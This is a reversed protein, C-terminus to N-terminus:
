AKSQSQAAQTQVKSSPKNEDGSQNQESRIGFFLAYLVPVVGLTLVTGIALGFAIAGAMAYFLPDQSIILPMLGLITTSTSMIIPRLRRVCASVMADFQAQGSSNEELDNIEIDIRDILVIANNIIIGALAYLGLIVMFGFDGQLVLLGLAAGIIILPITTIIIATRRFSKFQAILLLLIIAICMPLNKNLSAQSNKSDEIVGDYEITYGFPLSERLENLPGEMLPVMDEANMMANKAEVTVTRFMNERAIRAFGTDYQLTAVQMLPINRELGSSFVTVTELRNLDFRESAPARIIVPLIDDGERYETVVLGSFYSQLSQAIDQSSVGARRAQQQNVNIKIETVRNEWDNRIDYTGDLGRLIAEIQQAKAFIFEADPGKIQVDIKSSDSPGLFMKTVRAAVHPYQEAFMARLSEITPDTNERDGVDIMFFAKHPETDIPTLSLVFRPGGFGGYAVHQEIHEFRTKDELDNMVQRMVEDTERMSSGAPLDMYILVQSRDSSPFFKVPVQTMGFGGLFFLCVMGVIFLARHKLVVRLAVEYSPNLKDFIANIKKRVRGQQEETKIKVFHYCLLPTVSLSLFWSVLLSILIVLSVSRTYEGSASEALMLPLFVLITTLSSTLLPIALTKGCQVVADRRSEGEELRRKFDEAVVIGNDVLVGLAIILTALSMRELAMGSFAMVSITILIVSPVISGVIVGTRLGLFLIVVASVISLTQIVNASVGEVAAEVVDAQRTVSQLRFGAPISAQLQEIVQEVKPTFSLVDTEEDKAIAFIVAPEGKYYATRVPPDIARRNVEAIDKLQISQELGPVSILTNAIDEISQYNGTPQLTLNTGNADITGGPRIINQQQLAQIILNPAVGLQALKANAVEIVVQEPQIGLIDVRKAGPVTFLFDRIHQAVDFRDGWSIGEDALLAVTIVAVDGFNDNVRVASTGQPLQNVVLDIEQRMDDWIQDLENFRDEIQVHIISQGVLSISRIEKVEPLNQIAEELTKTILLEVRQAPFGELTTTVVAERVTVKPDEQAPLNFYSYAGFLMLSLVVAMLLRNYTLSLASINM